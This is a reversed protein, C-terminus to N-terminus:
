YKRGNQETPLVDRVIDKQSVSRCIPKRDKPHLEDTEIRVRDNAHSSVIKGKKLVGEPNLVTRHVFIVWRGLTVNLEDCVIPKAAHAQICREQDEKTQFRQLVEARSIGLIKEIQGVRQDELLAAMVNFAAMRTTDVMQKKEVGTLRQLEGEDLPTMRSERFAKNRPRRDKDERNTLHPM